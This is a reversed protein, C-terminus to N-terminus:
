RALKMSQYGTGPTSKSVVFGLKGYLSRAAFRDYGLGVSLRFNKFELSRRNDARFVGFVTRLAAEGYGKRQQNKDIEMLSIEITEAKECQFSKKQCYNVCVFGIKEEPNNKLYVHFSYNAFGYDTFEKAHGIKVFVDGERRQFKDNLKLGPSVFDSAFLSATTTFLIILVFLSKNLM